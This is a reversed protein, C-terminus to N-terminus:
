TRSQPFRKSHKVAKGFYFYTFIGVERIWQIYFQNLSSPVALENRFLMGLYPGACPLVQLRRFKDDSLCVCLKAHPFHFKIHHFVSFLRCLFAKRNLSVWYLCGGELDLLAFQSSSNSPTYHMKGTKRSEM